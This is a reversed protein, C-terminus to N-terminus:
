RPKGNADLGVTSEISKEGAVLTLTITVPVDPGAPKEDLTVAVRNGADPASTSFYWGDPADIFLQPPGPPRRSWPRLAKRTRLAPRSRASRWNAPRRRRGAQTASEDALRDRDRSPEVAANWPRSHTGGPGSYLHGQLHRVRREVRYQVPKTPDEPEVLLPLLVAGLYVYSM